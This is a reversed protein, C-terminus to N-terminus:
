GPRLLGRRAQNRIRWFVASFKRIAEGGKARLSGVMRPIQGLFASLKTGFALRSAADGFQATRQLFTLAASQATKSNAQGMGHIDDKRALPAQDRGTLSVRHPAALM